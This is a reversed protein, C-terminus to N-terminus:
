SSVIFNIKAILKWRIHQINGSDIKNASVLSMCIAIDRLSYYFSDFYTKDNLWIVDVLSDAKLAQEIPNAKKQLSIIAPRNVNGKRLLEVCKQATQTSYVVINDM